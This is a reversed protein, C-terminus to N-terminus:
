WKHLGAAGAPLLLLRLSPSIWTSSIVIRPVIGITPGVRTQLWHQHMQGAKLMSMLAAM